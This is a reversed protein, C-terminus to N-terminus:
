RKIVERPLPRRNNGGMGGKKAGEKEIRGRGTRRGKREKQQSLPFMETDVIPPTDRKKGPIDVRGSIASPTNEKQANLAPQDYDTPGLITRNGDNHHSM